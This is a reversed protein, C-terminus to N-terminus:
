GGDRGVERYTLEAGALRDRVEIPLVTLGM